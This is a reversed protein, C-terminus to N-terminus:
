FGVKLLPCKEVLTDNSPAAHLNFLMACWLHQTGFQMIITESICIDKTIVTNRLSATEGPIDKVALIVKLYCTAQQQGCHKGRRIYRDRSVLIRDYTKGTGWENLM